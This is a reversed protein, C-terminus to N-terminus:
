DVPWYPAPKPRREYELRLRGSEVFAIVAGERFRLEQGGIRSAMLLGKKVYRRVSVPHVNLIRAVDQTTLLRDPLM